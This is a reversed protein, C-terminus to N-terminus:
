PHKRICPVAKRLVGEAPRSMVAQPVNLARCITEVKPGSVLGTELLSAAVKSVAAWTRKERLLERTIASLERVNADPELEELWSEAMEVDVRWADPDSVGSFRQEAIPGALCICVEQRVLARWLRPPFKHRVDRNVSLSVSLGRGEGADVTTDRLGRRCHFAMVAHGAEHYAVVALDSM